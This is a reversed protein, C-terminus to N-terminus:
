KVPASRHTPVMRVVRLNIELLLGRYRRFQRFGFRERHAALVWRAAETYLKQVNTPEAAVDRSSGAASLLRRPSVTDGTSGLEEIPRASGDAGDFVEGGDVAFRLTRFARHLQESPIESLQRLFFDARHLHAPNEAGETDKLRKRLLPIQDR